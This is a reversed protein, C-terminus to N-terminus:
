IILEDYNLEGSRKTFNNASPAKPIKAVPQLMPTIPKYTADLYDLYGTTFFSDGNQPYKETDEVEKTYRSIARAMEELSINMLASKQYPSIKGKGRQVPYLQWLQDFHKDVIKDVFKNESQPCTGSIREREKEKDGEGDNDCDNESDSDYENDNDAQNALCVSANAQSQTKLGGKRGAESRKRCIEEWKQKDELLQDRIVSLLMAVVPDEVTYEKENVCAFISELLLGKQEISLLQIQNEWKKYMVFSRKETAM